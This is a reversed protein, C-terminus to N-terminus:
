DVLAVGTQSDFFHLPAADFGLALTEGPMAAVRERLVCVIDEGGLKANLYTEAGTPEVVAVTAAVANAGGLAIHEPRVGL